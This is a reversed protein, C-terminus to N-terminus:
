SGHQLWQPFVSYDRAILQEALKQNYPKYLSILYELTEPKLEDTHAMGNILYYIERLQIKLKPNARWFKEASDNVLLALRQLFQSKYNVSKNEAKLDPLDWGEWDIELWHCIEKLLQKSDNKLDDFFIVKLSKGFSTFWEDLYNAYFGGDLGWYTDNEQQVREQEPIAECQKIYEEITLNKDLSLISKKYKFFSLFRSIPERLIILIKAEDGLTTKIEKAVRMGGEFYGPTAEMRYKQDQCHIFYSQYQEFPALAQRYRADLQGYRFSSFYCTEKVSSPCIDPHQALYTYLSTTGGKVVGAIVLNPLKSKTSTM